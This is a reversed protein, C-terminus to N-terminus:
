TGYQICYQENHRYLVSSPLEVCQAHKCTTSLCHVTCYLVIINCVTICYYEEWWGMVCGKQKLYRAMTDCLRCCPARTRWRWRGALPMACLLRACASGVGVYPLLFLELVTYLVVTLCEYFSRGACKSVLALAGKGSSNKARIDAGLDILARAVEYNGTGCARLLPTSDPADDPGDKCDVQWCLRICYPITLVNM